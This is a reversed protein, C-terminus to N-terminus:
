MIKFYFSDIHLVTCVRVMKLFKGLEHQFKRLFTCIVFMRLFPNLATDTSLLCILSICQIAHTWRKYGPYFFLNPAFGDKGFEFVLYLGVFCICSIEICRSQKITLWMTNTNPYLQEYEEGDATAGYANLLIKCDGYEDAKSEYLQDDQYDDMMTQLDSVDRCWYPAEFFSLGFLGWGCLIVVRRLKVVLQGCIISTKNRWGHEGDYPNYNGEYPADRYGTVAQKMLHAAKGVGAHKLAQKRELLLESPM